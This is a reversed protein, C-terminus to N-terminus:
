WGWETRRCELTCTFNFQNEGAVIGFFHAFYEFDTQILGSGDGINADANVTIDFRATLTGGTVDPFAIPECRRSGTFVM